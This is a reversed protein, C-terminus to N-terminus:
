CHINFIFGIPICLCPTIIRYLSYFFTDQYRLQAWLVTCIVWVTQGDLTADLNLLPNKHQSWVRWPAWILVRCLWTGCMILTVQSGVLCNTIFCWSQSQKRLSSTLGKLGPGLAAKKKQCKSEAELNASAIPHNIM